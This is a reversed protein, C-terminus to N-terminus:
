EGIEIYKYKIHLLRKIIELDINDKGKVIEVKNLRSPIFNASSLSVLLDNKVVNYADIMEVDKSFERIETQFASSNISSFAMVSYSKHALSKLEEKVLAFSLDTKIENLLAAKELRESNVLYLHQYDIHRQYINSKVLSDRIFFAIDAQAHNFNIYEIISDALIVYPISLKAVKEKLLPVLENGLLVVVNCGNAVLYDLADVSLEELRKDSYDKYELNLIVNYYILKSFWLDNHIKNLFLLNNMGSDIVGVILKEM